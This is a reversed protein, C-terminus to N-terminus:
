NVRAVGDIFTHKVIHNSTIKLYIKTDFYM